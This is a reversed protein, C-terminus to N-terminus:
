YNEEQIYVDRLQNVMQFMTDAVDQDNLYPNNFVDLIKGILHNQTPANAVLRANQLSVDDKDVNGTTLSVATMSILRKDADEIRNLAVNYTWPGKQM